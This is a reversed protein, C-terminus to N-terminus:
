ETFLTELVLEKTESDPRARDSLEFVTLQFVYINDLDSLETDTKWRMDPHEPRFDGSKVTSSSLGEAMLEQMKNNALLRATERWEETIIQEQYSQTSNLFMVLAIAIFVLSVIVEMFTFGSKTNAELKENSTSPPMPNQKIQM